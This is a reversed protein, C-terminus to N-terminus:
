GDEGVINNITYIVEKQDEKSLSPYVPLSIEQEYFKEANPFDGIKFSYKKRYYPQLHVPIYHM